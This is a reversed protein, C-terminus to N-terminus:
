WSKEGTGQVNRQHQQPVTVMDGNCMICVRDSLPVTAPPPDRRGSQDVIVDAFLSPKLVELSRRQEHFWGAMFSSLSARSEDLM